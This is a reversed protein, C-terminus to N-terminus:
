PTEDDDNNLPNLASLREILTPDRLQVPEYPQIAVIQVDGIPTLMQARPGARFAFQEEISAPEVGVVGGVGLEPDVSAIIEHDDGAFQQDPTLTDNIRVAFAGAVAAVSALGVALVAKTPVPKPPAQGREINRLRENLANWARGGREGRWNSFDIAPTHGTLKPANPSRAIEILREVPIGKAWEFMYHQTAAESSWILLVAENSSQSLELDQLSPRGYSLRTRHEEADLLRMLTEATKLAEHACVIRIDIM